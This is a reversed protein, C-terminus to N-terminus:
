LWEELLAYIRQKINLQVNKLIKIMIEEIVIQISSAIDMHFETIKSRM